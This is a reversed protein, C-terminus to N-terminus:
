EGGGFLNPWLRYEYRFVKRGRANPRTDVGVLEFGLAQWFHRSELDEACRLQVSEVHAERADALLQEYCRRGSGYRRASKDICEQVIYVAHAYPRLSGRLLYGVWEGNDFQHYIRGQYIAERVAGETIFGVSEYNDRMLSTVLAVEAEDVHGPRWIESRKLLSTM